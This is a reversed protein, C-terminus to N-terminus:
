SSDAEQLQLFAEVVEPDFQTGACRRLEALAWKTPLAHRYPREHTMADFADVVALIRAALPIAWGGLGHPYGRGDWREHHCGVVDRVLTSLFRLRRVMEKGLLTHTRM